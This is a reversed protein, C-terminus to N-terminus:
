EAAGFHKKLKNAAMMEYFHEQSLVTRLGDPGPTHSHKYKATYEGDPDLVNVCEAVLLQAFKELSGPNDPDEKWIKVPHANAWGGQVLGAQEALKKIRENMRQGKHIVTATDHIADVLISHEEPTM